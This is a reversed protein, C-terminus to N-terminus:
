DGTKVRVLEAGMGELLSIDMGLQAATETNVTIIGGPATRYPPVAGTLLVELALEATEEGLRTYNVGCAAFAGATVFSDAGTYHPIGADMLIRAVAAEAGMVVNDTPTFVAEVGGTLSSAGAIIEETGTGTKEVYGIGREELFAKAEEIARASNIESNSYLLGVTRIDPDLKLMMELVFATDLSDSVGTVLPYETVGAGEPDSVAAYVVPVGADAATMMYQAALTGIPIVLDYGEAVVQAGIQTLVSADNQGSYCRAAVTIGRDAGLTELRLEIAARIEDLSAHDMQQVIAIHYDAQPAAGCGPAAYAVVAAFILLFVMRKM